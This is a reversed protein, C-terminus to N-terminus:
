NPFAGPTLIKSQVLPVLRDALDAAQSVVITFVISLPTVVFFLVILLTTISALTERDGFWLKLQRYLPHFLAAFLSAIFVSQLFPKVVQFFLASIVILVILLVGRNVIRQQM